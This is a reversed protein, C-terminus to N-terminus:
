KLFCHGAEIHGEMGIERVMIFSVGKATLMLAALNGARKPNGKALRDILWGVIASVSLGLQLKAHKETSQLENSIRNASIEQYKLHSNFAVDL